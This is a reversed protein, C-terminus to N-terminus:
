FGGSGLESVLLKGAMATGFLFVELIFLRMRRAEFRQRLGTSLDQGSHPLATGEWM